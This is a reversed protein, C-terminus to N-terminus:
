HRDIIRIGPQLRSACQFGSKVRKSSCDSQDLIGTAKARFAGLLRPCDRGREVSGLSVRLDRFGLDRLSQTVLQALTLKWRRRHKSNAVLRAATAGSLTWHEFTRLATEVGRRRPTEGPGRRLSRGLTLFKRSSAPARKRMAQEP